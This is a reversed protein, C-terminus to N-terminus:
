SKKQGISVYICYLKRKFFNLVSDWKQTLIANIAV